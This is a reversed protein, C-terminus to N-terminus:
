TAQVNTSKEIICKVIQVINLASGKRLNNTMAWMTITNSSQKNQRLRSVFIADEGICDINTIYETNQQAVVIQEQENLAIRAAQINISDKFRINLTMGHSNFTPTHVCTIDIPINAELISNIEKAIMYEETTYGDDCTEGIFPICNFAITRPFITPAVQEFTFKAKTQSYLEDMAKKGMGSTSQYTSINISTIKGLVSLADAIISAQIAICSPNSIISINPRTNLLKNNVGYVLPPINNTNCYIPTNNIVICNADIAKKIFFESVGEGTTFIAIDVMHFDYDSLAKTKIRDKGFSITKEFSENPAIAIINKISFKESAMIDCIERGINDTAGIIAINM